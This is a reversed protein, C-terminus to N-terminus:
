EPDLRVQLRDQVESPMWIQLVPIHGALFLHIFVRSADDFNIEVQRPTNGIPHGNVYISAGEPTTTIHVLRTTGCSALSGLSAALAVL